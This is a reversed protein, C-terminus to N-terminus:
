GEGLRGERESMWSSAPLPLRKCTTGNTLSKLPTNTRKVVQWLNVLLKGLSLRIVSHQVTSYQITSYQITSYQITSYQVTNYQVKSYQIASYQVTSYQMGTAFFCLKPVELRQQALFVFFTFIKFGVFTM